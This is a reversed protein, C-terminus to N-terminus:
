TRVGGVHLKGTPSPAYRVRVEKNEMFRFKAYPRLEPFHAGALAQVEGARCILRLSNTQLFSPTILVISQELCTTTAKKLKIRALM